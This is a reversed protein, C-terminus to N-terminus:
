VFEVAKLTATMLKGESQELSMRRASYDKYTKKFDTDIAIWQAKEKGFVDLTTIISPVEQKKEYYISDQTFDKIYEKTPLKCKTPDYDPFKVSMPNSISWQQFEKTDFFHEYNEYPIDFMCCMRLQCWQYKLTFNCWSLVAGCSEDKLPMMDILPELYNCVLLPFEDRYHKNAVEATSNLIMKAGLIQDGIEGTVIFYDKGTDKSFSLGLAETEGIGEKQYVEGKYVELKPNDKIIKDYFLPYEDISKQNLCVKIDADPYEDIFKLIGVLATTSNMGGSWSVRLEKNEDESKKLLEKARNDCINTYDLPDNPLGPIESLIALDSNLIRTRDALSATLFQGLSQFSEDGNGQRYYYKM